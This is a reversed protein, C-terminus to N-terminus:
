ASPVAVGVRGLVAALDRALVPWAHREAVLRRGAAARTAAGEPDSVTEIVAEALDAPEALRLHEGDAVDIGRAGFPTSVVPLRWALFELLKLNTGSGTRMPNLALDAAGLLGVRLRDPVEGTFRVNAPLRRGAFALGHHGVSLFQVAPVCAAVEVLLEAADINPPHWSGLFVALHSPRAPDGAPWWGRWRESRARRRAPSPAEAPVATGNPVVTIDAPARGYRDALAAADAASTTTVHAAGAVADGEIAEVLGLVARGRPTDPLARAKLAREDNFADYVLPLELGAERVAPHLYPEAVVVASAGDAARRLADLYAPTLAIDTGALVDTVPLGVETGLRDAVARHAESRRVTTQTFGPGLDVTGEPDDALGLAVVEVELDPALHGYLHRARLQGGGVRGDLPFTTAVVVRPRGPPRRRATAPPRPAADTGTDDDDALLTAVAGPWSVLAGRARGARGMAAAAAPDAVLGALARGLAVPDAEVVRGHVGDVVLETPGGSDRCTVVPTGQSFAELTVLGLDEDDPVFPVATAAAYGARLEDDPVFGLFSIRGDPAAQRRLRDGEPGTGAIHLRAPGPVHAMAAVLLDLRKGGDLRSATFLLAPDARPVPDPPPGLDGPLRLVRPVVGPPLYGPRSAVTRSLALHRRTAPPTLAVTDLWRVVARALPGPFVLDPHDPGVRDLIEDWRAFLEPVRGPDPGARLLAVLAATAPTTPEARRPRGFLHYHDYLGRLPHFMLVTHHPHRVLWAPYKATVVRDFRGLDLEWFARYGAVLGPLHSEDVPVRVTEVQHPTLRAVAAHLGDVAREAGGYVPPVPAPAVVAVRM